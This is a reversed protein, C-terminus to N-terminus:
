PLLLAVVQRQEAVLVSFTRCAAATGMSEFGIGRELFSASFVVPAFAHDAGTGLLVVEPAQELLAQAHAATLEGVSGIAPGEHLALASVIVPSRYTTENILLEGPRYARPQYRASLSDRTFRM